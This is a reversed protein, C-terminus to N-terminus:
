TRYLYEVKVISKLKEILISLIVCIILLVSFILYVHKFMYIFKPFYYYFIFTHLMFINMSHIGLFVLIRKIYKIKELYEYGILIIVLAYLGDINIESFYPFWFVKIYTFALTLLCYIILKALKNNKLLGKIKILGNIHSLYIGLCFSFLWPITFNFDINYKMISFQTNMFSSCFFSILIIAFGYKEILTKLFPFILYFYIILSVFWWTPNYGHFGKFM